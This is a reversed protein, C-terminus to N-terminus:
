KSLNTYIQRLFAKFLLMIGIKANLIFHFSIIVFKLDPYLIRTQQVLDLGSVVPMALDVFMLDVNNNKLFELAKAGNAAEGVVKMGHSSWPMISILGKRALMDDDVILVKIM